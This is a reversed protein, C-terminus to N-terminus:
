QVFNLCYFAFAVTGDRDECHLCLPSTPSCSWENKIVASSPLSHSADRGPLKVVPFLCPLNCRSELTIRFDKVVLNCKILICFKVCVDLIYIYIHTHTHTHTHVHHRLQNLCQAVIRFTAPDIESQTM